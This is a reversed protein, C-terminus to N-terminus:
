SAMATAYQERIQRVRKEQHRNLADDIDNAFRIVRNIEEMLLAPDHERGKTMRALGQVSAMLYGYSFAHAYDSASEPIEVTTETTTSM